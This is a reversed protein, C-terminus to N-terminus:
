KQIFPTMANAMNTMEKSFKEKGEDSDLNENRLVGLLRFCAETLNDIPNIEKDM